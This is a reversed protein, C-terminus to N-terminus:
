VLRAAARRLSDRAHARRAAHAAACRVRKNYAARMGNASACGGVQCRGPAPRPPAAGAAAPPAATAGEAEAEAEEDDRAADGEAPAPADGQSPLPSADRECSGSPLLQPALAAPPAAGGVAAFAAQSFPL